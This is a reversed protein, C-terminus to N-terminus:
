LKRIKERGERVDRTANRTDLVRQAHRVVRAWDIARHQTLILVLDAAGLAEEGLEV